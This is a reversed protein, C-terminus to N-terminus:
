VALNLTTYLVLSELTSPTGGNSPPISNLGDSPQGIGDGGYAPLPLSLSMVALLFLILFLLVRRKEREALRKM